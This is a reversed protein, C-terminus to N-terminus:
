YNAQAYHMYLGSFLMQCTILKGCATAAVHGRTEKGGGIM